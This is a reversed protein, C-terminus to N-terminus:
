AQVKGRCVRKNAAKKKDTHRGAGGRQFARVALWNRTAIRRHGQTNSAPKKQSM